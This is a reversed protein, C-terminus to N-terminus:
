HLLLCLPCASCSFFRFGLLSRPAGGGYQFPARGSEGFDLSVFGALFQMLKVVAWRPSDENPGNEGLFQALERGTGPECIRM